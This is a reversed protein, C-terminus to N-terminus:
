WVGDGGEYEDCMLVWAELEWDRIASPTKCGGLKPPSFGGLMNPIGEVCDEIGGGDVDWNGTALVKM